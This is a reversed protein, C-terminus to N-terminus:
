PNNKLSIETFEFVLESRIKLMQGTAAAQDVIRIVEERTKKLQEVRSTTGDDDQGTRLQNGFNKVQHYDIKYNILSLLIDRADDAPFTGDILTLVPQNLPKEM